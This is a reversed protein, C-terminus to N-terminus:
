KNYLRALILLDRNMIPQINANINTERYLPSSFGFSEIGYPNEINPINVYQINPLAEENEANIYYVVRNVRNIFNPNPLKGMNMKLDEPM